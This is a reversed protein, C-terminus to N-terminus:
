LIDLFDKLYFVKKSINTIYILSIHNKKYSNFM